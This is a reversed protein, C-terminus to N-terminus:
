GGYKFCAVSHANELAVDAPERTTCVEMRDACRPAFRCTDAFLTLGPSDGAIVPLASKSLAMEQTIPPPLSRLLAKTYPHRPSALVAETPGIEAIQGAYLVLVRDALGPLNAPNHTIFVMALSFERRLARFLSLIEQETSADLSATPEDAVVLRPGCAIAQALLVRQRQGGSLQHPYSDAIRKVEAPFVTALIQLAKERRAKRNLSEHAAIVDGIQERVRIAPHLAASPEQFILSIQGGRIRELERSRAHLVDQGQFRVAGKLVRGNSPLLRLLAAALTSKGSGSAGLVGLTEGAQVQFSVGAVAAYDEGAEAHYAVHLDQVELLVSMLHGHLSEGAEGRNM